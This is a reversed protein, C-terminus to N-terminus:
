DWETVGCGTDITDFPARQDVSVAALGNRISTGATVGPPCGDTLAMVFQMQGTVM